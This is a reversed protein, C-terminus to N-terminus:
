LSCAVSDDRSTILGGTMPATQHGDVPKATLQRIAEFLHLPRRPTGALKKALEIDAIHGHQLLLGIQPSSMVTDKPRRTPIRALYLSPIAHFLSM